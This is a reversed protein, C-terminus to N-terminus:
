PNSHRHTFMDLVGHAELACFEFVYRIKEHIHTQVNRLQFVQNLKIKSETRLIGVDIFEIMRQISTSSFARGWNRLQKIKNKDKEAHFHPPKKGNTIAWLLKVRNQNKESALRLEGEAGGSDHVGNEGQIAISLDHNPPHRTHTHKLVLIFSDSHRYEFYRPSWM